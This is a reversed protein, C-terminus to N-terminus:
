SGVRDDRHAKVFDRGHGLMMEQIGLTSTMDGGARKGAKRARDDAEQNMVRDGNTLECKCLM